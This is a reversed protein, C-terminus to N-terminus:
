LKKFINEHSDAVSAIRKWRNKFHKPNQNPPISLYIFIDFFIKHFIMEKSNSMKWWKGSSFTKRRSIHYQKYM